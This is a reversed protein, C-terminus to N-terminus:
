DGPTVEIAGGGIHEIDWSRMLGREALHLRYLIRIFAVTVVTSNRTFKM